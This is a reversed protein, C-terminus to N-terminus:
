VLKVGKIKKISNKKFIYESILKNIEEILKDM